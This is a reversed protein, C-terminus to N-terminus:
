MSICAPLICHVYFLFLCILFFVSNPDGLGVFLQVCHYVDTSEPSRYLSTLGLGPSAQLGAIRSPSAQLGVIRSPSARLGAVRCFEGALLLGPRLCPPGGIDVRIDHEM